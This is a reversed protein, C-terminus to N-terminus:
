TNDNEAEARRNWADIADQKSAYSFTQAYCNLCHIAYCSKLKGNEGRYFHPIIMNIERSGCFPCERIELRFKKYEDETM